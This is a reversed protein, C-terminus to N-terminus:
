VYSNKIIFMIVYKDINKHSVSRLLVDCMKWLELIEVSDLKCMHLYDQFMKIAIQNALVYKLSNTWKDLDDKSVSSCPDGCPVCSM